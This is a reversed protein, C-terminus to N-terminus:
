ELTCAKLLHVSEFKLDIRFSMSGFLPILNPSGRITAENRLQGYSKFLYPPKRFGSSEPRPIGYVDAHVIASQLKQGQTIGYVGVFFPWRLRAGCKDGFM